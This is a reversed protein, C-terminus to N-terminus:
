FNQEREQGYPKQRTAPSGCPCFWGASVGAETNPPHQLVKTVEAIYKDSVQNEKREMWQLPLLALSRMLSIM